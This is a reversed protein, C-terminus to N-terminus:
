RSFFEKFLNDIISYMEPDRKMLDQRSVDSGSRETNIYAKVSEAFYEMPSQAAYETIFQHGSRGAECDLFCDLLKGSKYSFPVEALDKNKDECKVREDLPTDRYRESAGISLDLAHAAEHELPDLASNIRLQGTLAISMSGLTAALLVADTIPNFLLLTGILVGSSLILSRKGKFVSSLLPHEIFIDFLAGKKLKIDMTIESDIAKKDSSPAPETTTKRRTIIGGANGLFDLPKDLIKVNNQKLMQLASYPYKSLRRIIKEKKAASMASETLSDIIARKDSLSHADQQLVTGTNKEVTNESELLKAGQIGMDLDLHIPVLPQGPVQKEVTKTEILNRKETVTEKGPEASSKRGATKGQTIRIDSLDETSIRSDTVPEGQSEAYSPRAPTSGHGANGTYVSQGNVISSNM